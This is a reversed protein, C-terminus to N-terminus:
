FGWETFLGIGVLSMFIALVIPVRWATRMGRHAAYTGMIPTLLLGGLSGISFMAGYATGLDSGLGEKDVFNFLIGVLTPFIPGLLVGTLILGWAAGKGNRAGAMNGLTVGAGLALVIILWADAVGPAIWGSAMLIATVFRSALFSLWFASLTFVASREGMGLGMLFTTSWAGLIWELPLYILLVIGTLVVVKSRTIEAIHGSSSHDPFADSATALAM